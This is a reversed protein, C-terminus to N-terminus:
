KKVLIGSKEDLVATTTEKSTKLSLVGANVDKAFDDTFNLVMNDIVAKSVDLPSHTPMLVILLVQIWTDMYDNYSYTKLLRDGQQVNVKLVYEDRAFGPVITFTLGSVFGSVFALGMNGENRFEVDLHYRDPRGFSTYEPIISNENLASNILKSVKDATVSSENELILAKVQYTVALQNTPKTIKDRAYSPLQKGPFSACGTYFLGLSFLILFMVFCKSRNMRM